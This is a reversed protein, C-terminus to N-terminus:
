GLTPAEAPPEELTRTVCVEYQAGRSDCAIPVAFLPTDGLQAHSFKFTGQTFLPEVPGLFIMSYQEYGKPARRGDVATLTVAVEPTPSQLPAQMPSMMFQTALVAEFRAQHLQSATLEM